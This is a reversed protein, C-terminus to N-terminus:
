LVSVLFSNVVTLLKIGEQGNAKSLVHGLEVTRNSNVNWRFGSNVRGNSSTIEAEVEVTVM